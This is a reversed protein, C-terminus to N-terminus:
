ADSKEKERNGFACWLTVSVIVILGGILALTGPREGDFILVWVPNLLPEVASLLCCALPPCHEAALGYLVYPIGLQVVGLIIINLLPAGSLSVGTSIVFPLGFLFAFAHGILQGSFREEASLAAMGKLVTALESKKGLYAVRLQELAAADNANALEALAKNKLAELKEKMATYEKYIFIGSEM